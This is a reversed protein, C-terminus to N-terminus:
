RVTDTTNQSFYVRSKSHSVKSGSADCFQDLCASIIAAQDVTAEGFLILDDAFALNSVPPGNRSARVPKWVGLQTASEILHSLSEMCIVYLYPSLPDGQRIGRSPKFADTPEGNWLIQLNTSCVCQMILEIMRIPLRLEMLSEKIFSWWLRDYAKEFDIKIAMFGVAGQKRRM